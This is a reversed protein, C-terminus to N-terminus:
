FPAPEDDPDPPPPPWSRIQELTSLRARDSVGPEPSRAPPPLDDDTGYGPPHTTITDGGPTTWALGGDPPRRM